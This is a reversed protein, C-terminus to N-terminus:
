TFQNQLEIDKSESVQGNIISDNVSSTTVASFSENEWQENNNASM